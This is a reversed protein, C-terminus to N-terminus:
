ANVTEEELPGDSSFTLRRVLEALSVRRGEKITLEAASRVLRIYEAQSFLVNVAHRQTAVNEAGKARRPHVM